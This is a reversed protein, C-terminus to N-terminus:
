APGPTAIQKMVQQNAKDGSKYLIRKADTIALNVTHEKISGETQGYATLIESRTLTSGNFKELRNWQDRWSTGMVTSQPLPATRITRLEEM